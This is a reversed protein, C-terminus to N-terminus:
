NSTTILESNITNSEVDLLVGFSNAVTPIIELM